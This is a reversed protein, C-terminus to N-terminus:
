MQGKHYQHGNSRFMALAIAVTVEVENEIVKKCINIRNMEYQTVYTLISAKDKKLAVKCNKSKRDM